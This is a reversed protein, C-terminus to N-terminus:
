SREKHLNTQVKNAYFDSAVDFIRGNIACCINGLQGKDNLYQSAEFGLLPIHLFSNNTFGPAAKVSTCALVHLVSRCSSEM